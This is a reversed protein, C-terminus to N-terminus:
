RNLPMLLYVFSIDSESQLFVPKQATTFSLKIKEKALHPIVELFYKNNYNVEINEGEKKIDVINTVQGIQENKSHLTLKEDEILFKVQSYQETFCTTLTLAKQLENKNLYCTTTYEKPFLQKYDPFQGLIINICLTLSNINLTLLGENKYINIVGEEESLISVIESINKQPILISINLKSENNIHKEALRYSDTAVSYLNDEKSYIFVSSIEPKIETTACCFSVSKILSILNETKIEGVSEGQQPLAPFDEFPITKIEINEKESKIIFINENLECILNIEEKQLFNTIKILTEGKLVCKGNQIGKVSISKECFIELNTARLTLQHEELQLYIDQLYEQSLSKSRARSIQNITNILNRSKCEFKM